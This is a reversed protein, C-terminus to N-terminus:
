KVVDTLYEKLCSDREMSRLACGASHSQSRLVADCRPSFTTSILPASICAQRLLLEADAVTVCSVKESLLM